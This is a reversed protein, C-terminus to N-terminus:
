FINDVVQGPINRTPQTTSSLSMMKDYSMLYYDHLTKLYESNRLYKFVLNEVSYIGAKELGSRRMNRIKRKLRGAFDFAEHFRRNNYLDEIKDIHELIINVKKNVPELDVRPKDIAPKVVWQDALISYIGSSVHQEDKDQAYIEVEHGFIEIDHTLNWNTRRQNLLDRVLDVNEYIERYNLVIHLDLDSYKTWNYNALSGTIILDVIEVDLDANEVFDKVIRLLKEKVEPKLRGEPLWVEPNLKDQVEFHVMSIPDPSEPTFFNKFETLTVRRTYDKWKKNFNTTM